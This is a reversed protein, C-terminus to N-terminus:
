VLNKIVFKIDQSTIDKHIKKHNAFIYKIYALQTKPKEPVTSAAIYSVDYSTESYNTGQSINDMDSNAGSDYAKCREEAVQGELEIIMQQYEKCKSCTEAEHLFDLAKNETFKKVYQGDVLNYASKPLVLLAYIDPNIEELKNFQRTTKTINDINAELFILLGLPHPAITHEYMYDTQACITNTYIHSCWNIGEIYQAYVEDPAELLNFKKIFNKTLGNTLKRLFVLLFKYNLTSNLFCGTKLSGVTYVYADWLKDINVYNLKPLYDNGLLISILMFDKAYSPSFCTAKVHETLLKDLKIIYKLNNIHIHNITKGYIAASMIIIDADTSIILHSTNPNLTIQNTIKTEAEGAGELIQVAIGLKSKLKNIYWELQIPLSNIFRTGPTFQLPNIGNLVDWDTQAMKLRRKRQLAIKAFPAVGDIAFFLKSKPVNFHIITDISNTLKKILMHESVSKYSNIHLLCSIDIYVNDYESVKKDHSIAKPYKACIWKHFNTIGM